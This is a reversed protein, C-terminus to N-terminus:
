STSKWYVAAEVGCSAASSTRHISPIFPQSLPRVRRSM